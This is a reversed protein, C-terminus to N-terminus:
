QANALDSDFERALRGVDIEIVAFKREAEPAPDRSDAMVWGGSDDRWFQAVYGDVSAPHNKYPMIMFAEAAEAVTMGYATLEDIVAFAVANRVAFPTVAPTTTM